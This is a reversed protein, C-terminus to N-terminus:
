VQAKFLNTAIASNPRVIEFVLCTFGESSMKTIYNYFSVNLGNVGIM